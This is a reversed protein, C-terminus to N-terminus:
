QSLIKFNKTNEYRYINEYNYKKSNITNCPPLTNM